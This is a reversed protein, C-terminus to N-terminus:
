EEFLIKNLNIIFSEYSYYKKVTKISQVSIESCMENNLDKIKNIWSDLNHNEIFIINKENKFNEEDWFGDTKTIMVPIGMSMSQLAVSQGSPQLSNKLPIISLFAKSYIEKLELDTIYNEKWDGKYIKVNELSVNLLKQSNSIFLFEYESLKEAIKVVTDFDRNGDNGVFLVKNKQNLDFSDSSSWFIEDIAFPLFYFKEQDNFKKLAQEYEPKGLFLVKSVLKILIYIFINHIFSLYKFRIKKSLLGMSFIVIEKKSIIKLVLLMFFSSFAVGENVLIIFDSKLFLKFNKFTTLKHSSFPLNFFKNFIKDFFKLFDKHFGEHEEFEIINLEFLETNFFDAGYLFEKAFENDSFLKNKRGGSFVYTIKKM